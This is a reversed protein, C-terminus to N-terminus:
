PANKLYRDLFKEVRSWFDFRNAQLMWGHGEDAYAIWEVNPNHAQLASRMKTGHTLTVTDDLGGYAMLLPQKLQAARQLPSTAVFQAADKERDGVLEPLGYDAALAEDIHWNSAFLLDIDSVGVWQVGCRFLAPDRILGMLTAYGGYSAGALCVRNPDALGQAIAWRAADAVDDQMALGWQKWGARFLRGGYGTSSRFEPEVVLYGRSALFQSQAEWVWGAARSWPGGHVLVVMPAAGTTSGRPRTVHVPIRLGDRATFHTFTREAMAAAKIWPRAAALPKLTGSAVDFLLHLQPQRDSSASVLVKSPASCNGCDLLNNTDPLLRDVQAQLQQLQANFWHTGREQAQHRVGMLEGNADFVLRGAFDHGDLRLLPQPLASANRLELRVLATTDAGNNDTTVAYLRDQRDVALPAFAVAVAPGEFERLLAWPADATAKAHVRTKGDVRAVAVRPQGQADLAWGTSREPAQPTLLRTGASHTDVRLLTVSHLRWRNDFVQQAVVIDSSGDRLLAFLHHSGDLERRSAPATVGTWHRQILLRPPGQGDRDVAYLGEGRQAAYASQTDSLTFVLREDNVWHITEIDADSFSALVKSKSWDDLNLAVLRRRGQPGAALAAAAHLGNPSMVVSSVAPHRFFDALPPLPEAARLALSALLMASAVLVRLFPAILASTM